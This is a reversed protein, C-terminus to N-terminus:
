SSRVRDLRTPLEGALPPEVSYGLSRLAESAVSPNDRVATKLQTARWDQRGRALRELAGVPHDIRFEHILMELIDELCPRFRAGGLPFHVSALQPIDSDGGPAGSSCMLWTFRDRHAHVHLHARPTSSSSVERLYEYRFLPERTARRGAYVAVRSEEIALYERASDWRCRYKVKLSLMPEGGVMLSAGASDKPHRVVFRESGGTASAAQVELAKFDDGAVVRIVETLQAAFSSAELELRPLSACSDNM